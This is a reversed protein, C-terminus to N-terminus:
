TPETRRTALVARHYAALVDREHLVGVLTQGEGTDLVAIHEERCTELISIATEITDTVCATPPETRAIDSAKLVDDKEHEFANQALDRLTITGLLRNTDDVVFLEGYSSELLSARITNLSADASITLFDDKMVDRVSRSRMVAAERGGKLSVGRQHLQWSFFSFGLTNLSIQSAIVTAIMVGITLEYDGTLEFVILITSIPAGLVAGAMAGMGILTYASHGSSLDPQVMTAIVGFAGGMMAGIFLSPSFVGGGGGSGLTIATAATKVVILMLLMLLPLEGRLAQDTAYYGVGLAEPMFIGIVGVALGGLAPRAWVPLKPIAAFIKQSYGVSRIFVISGVASVVGLLAFAPFEWFSTIEHSPIVFAPFDGFYIRSVLTGTVSAIVVPAFAALAYHGVVVELAFFVGAIPANFSAAVGAAVGCGLVTQQMAPGLKLREGLFSCLSAALHVVPGERGASGGSGLTTASILAAGLGVRLNLRGGRLASAEIVDAVAYPRRGPMLYYVLLGVILGGATTALPIRWWDIRSRDYALLDSSAGFFGTQILDITERFVIAAAGGLLGFVVSLVSMVFHEHRAFRSVNGM